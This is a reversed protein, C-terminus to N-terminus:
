PITALYGARRCYAEDDERHDRAEPRAHHRARQALDHVDYHKGDIRPHIEIGLVFLHSIQADINRSSRQQRRNGCRTILM